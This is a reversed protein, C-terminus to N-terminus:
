NYNSTSATRKSFSRSEIKNTLIRKSVNEAHAVNVELASTFFYTGSTLNGIAYLAPQIEQKSNIVESTDFNIDIGGFQHPQILGDTKLNSILANDCNDISDESGTANVLYNSFHTNNKQDKLFFINKESDHTVDSFDQIFSLQGTEFLRMIKVANSEPTGVRYSIWKSKYNETM